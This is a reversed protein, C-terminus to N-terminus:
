HVCNRNENMGKTKRERKKYVRIGVGECEGRRHVPERCDRNTDVIAIENGNRIRSIDGELAYISRSFASLRLSHDFQSDLSRIRDDREVEGIKTKM